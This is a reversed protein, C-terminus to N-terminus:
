HTAVDTWGEAIEIERKEALSRDIASAVVIAALGDYGTVVPACRGRVVGAFHLLLRRFIGDLQDHIVPTYGTDPYEASGDHYVAVGNEHGLVEAAGMSGRVTFMENQPRGGQAPTGWSSEVVGIAGNAFTLVAIIFDMREKGGSRSYAMVRTVPSGTTWLMMDIDHPMLWYALPFRGLVRDVAAQGPNRRAYLHLVEGISGGAVSQRMAVFRPDFRLSHCVMLTVGALGAQRLIEAGDSVSLALPKEVLVHKGAALAALVAGSHAWESAAVIVAEISPHADLMAQVDAGSYGPIDYEGALSKTSTENRGCVAALRLAGSEAILRAYIRGM